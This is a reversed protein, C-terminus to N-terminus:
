GSAPELTAAVAGSERGVAEGAPAMLQGSVIDDVIVPIFIASGFQVLRGVAACCRDATLRTLWATAAACLYVLSATALAAPYTGTVGVPFRM